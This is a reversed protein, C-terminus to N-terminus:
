GWPKSDSAHILWLMYLSQAAKFQSVSFRKTIRLAAPSHDWHAPEARQQTCLTHNECVYHARPVPVVIGIACRLGTDCEFDHREEWGGRGREGVGGGAGGQTAWAM